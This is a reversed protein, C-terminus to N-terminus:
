YYYYYYYYDFKYLAMHDYSWLRQCCHFRSHVTFLKLDPNLRLAIRPRGVQPWACYCRVSRLRAESSRVFPRSKSAGPESPEDINSMVGVKSDGRQSSRLM